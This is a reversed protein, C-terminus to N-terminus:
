AVRRRRLMLGGIGMLGLTVTAPEPVAIINALFKIEGLGVRDGPGVGGGPFRGGANDTMTIRVANAEFVEDFTLTASGTGLRFSTQVDVSNYYSSGGDVSFEVTFDTAENNNGGYGWVVLDTLDFTGELDLEFQPAVQGNDFYNNPFVGTGTVWRAESGDNEPHAFTTYDSADPTGGGFGSNNILNSAPFGGLANGATQNIATPTILQQPAGISLSVSSTADNLLYVQRDPALGTPISNDVGLDTVLGFAIVDGVSANAIDNVVLANSFSGGHAGAATTAYIVNHATEQTGTNWLTNASRDGAAVGFYRIDLGELKGPGNVVQQLEFSLQARSGTGVAAAAESILASTLQFEVFTRAARNNNPDANGNASRQSGVEVEGAASFGTGFFSNSQKGSIGDQVQTADLPVAAAPQMLLCIVAIAAAMMSVFRNGNTMECQKM